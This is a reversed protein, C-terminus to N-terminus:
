EDLKSKVTQIKEELQRNLREFNKIQERKEAIQERLKDGVEKSRASQIKDKITELEEQLQESEETNKRHQSSWDEVQNEMRELWEEYKRKKDDRIANVKTIATEWAENLIGRLEDRQVKGLPAKKLHQQTEKVKDIAQFPDGDNAEELAVQAQPLIKEHHSDWIVQKSSFVLDNLERWKDWCIQRDDRLLVNNSPANVGNENSSREGGNKLLALAESLLSQAKNLSQINDLAGETNISAEEVKKLISERMQQSKISRTEWEESQRKKAEKRINDYTRRFEEREDDPLPALTEIMESTEKAHDWFARYQLEGDTELYSSFEELKRKIVEHNSKEHSLWKEWEASMSESM